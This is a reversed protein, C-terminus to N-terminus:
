LEKLSKNNKEKFAEIKKMLNSKLSSEQGGAINPYGPNATVSYRPEPPIMTGQSKATKCQDEVMQIKCNNCTKIM